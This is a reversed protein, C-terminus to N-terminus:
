PASLKLQDDQLPTSDFSTLQNFEAIKKKFEANFEAVTQIDIPGDAKFAPSQDDPKIQKRVAEYGPRSLDLRSTGDRVYILVSFTTLLLAIAVAIVVATLLRYRQIIHPAHPLM